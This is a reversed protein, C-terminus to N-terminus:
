EPLKIMDGMKLDWERPRMLEMGSGQFFTMEGFYIKGGIDYFDIRIFPFGKSLKAALEKMKEFGPIPPHVEGPLYKSAFQNTSFPLRVLNLDFYDLYAKKDKIRGRESSIFFIKPEGNYCYFKYDKLESGSEDVMFKEAIIRPKLDKYPYERSKMFYNRRMRKEFFKRANAPLAGHVPMVGGSDHTVKLIYDHPLTDFPIEDFSDWVGYLPILYEEGITDAVFKRVEYKDVYRGFDKDKSWLKLWNIKENFTRPNKWNLRRGFVFFYNGSLYLKDPKIFRCSKNWVKCLALNPYIFLKKFKNM